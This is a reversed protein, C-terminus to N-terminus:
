DIASSSLTDIRHIVWDGKDQRMFVRDSM